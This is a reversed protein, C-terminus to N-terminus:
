DGGRGAGQVWVLRVTHLGTGPGASLPIMDTEGVKAPQPGGKGGSGWSPQRLGRDPNLRGQRHGLPEAASVTHLGTGARCFRGRSGVSTGMKCIHFSLDLLSLVPSNWTGGYPLSM